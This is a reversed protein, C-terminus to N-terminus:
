KDVLPAKKRFHVHAHLIMVKIVVLVPISLIM